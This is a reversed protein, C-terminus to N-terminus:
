DEGDRREVIVEYDGTEPNARMGEVEIVRMVAERLAWVSARNSETVEGSQFGDILSGAASLLQYWATERSTLSKTQQGKSKTGQQEPDNM